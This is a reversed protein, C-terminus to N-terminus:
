RRPTRRLGQELYQQKQQIALGYRFTTRHGDESTTTTRRATTIVRAWPGHQDVGTKVKVKRRLNGSKKPASRRVFRRVRNAEKRLETRGQKQISRMFARLDRVDFDDAV